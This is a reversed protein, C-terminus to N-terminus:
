QGLYKIRPTPTPTATITPRMTPTPTATPYRLMDIAVGDCHLATNVKACTTGMPDHGDDRPLNCINSYGSVPRACVNVMGGVPVNAFSFIGDQLSAGGSVTKYTFQNGNQDLGSLEITVGNVGNLGSSQCYYGNVSIVRGTLTCNGSPTKVAEVGTAMREAARSTSATSNRNAILMLPISVLALFLIVILIAITSINNKSKRKAAM